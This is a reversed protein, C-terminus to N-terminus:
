YAINFDCYRLVIRVEHHSFHYMHLSKWRQTLRSCFEIGKVSNGNDDLRPSYTCIGMVNPIVILVAGSVGSKAPFGIKLAFEGSYDYM